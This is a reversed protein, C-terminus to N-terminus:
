QGHTTLPYTTTPATGDFSTAVTGPPARPPIDTSQSDATEDPSGHGRNQMVSTLIQTRSGFVTGYGKGGEGGDIGLFGIAAVLVGLIAVVLAWLNATYTKDRKHLSTHQQPIV